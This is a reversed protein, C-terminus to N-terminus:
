GNIMIKKMLTFFIFRFSVGLSNAARSRASASLRRIIRKVIIKYTSSLLLLLLNKVMIIMMTAMALSSFRTLNELHKMM